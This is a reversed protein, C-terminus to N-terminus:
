STAKRYERWFHRTVEDTIRAGTEETNWTLKWNLWESVLHFIEHSVMDTTVKSAVLHMEGFKGHRRGEQGENWWYGWRGGGRKHFVYQSVDELYVVFYQRGHNFSVRFDQM